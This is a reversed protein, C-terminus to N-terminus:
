FVLNTHTTQKAKMVWFYKKRIHFSYDPILLKSKDRGVYLHTPKKISPEYDDSYGLLNM